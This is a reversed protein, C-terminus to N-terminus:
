NASAPLPESARLEVRCLRLEDGAVVQTRFDGCTDCVLRNPKTRSHAACSLCRIIVPPSEISLLARAACGGSRLIEFARALLVPEIGSLPGVEITIREVACAGHDMAIDAVQTLLAHCVSLEHVPALSARHDNGNHVNGCLGFWSAFASIKAFGTLNLSSVATLAIHRNMCDLRVDEPRM